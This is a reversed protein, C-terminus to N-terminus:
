GKMYIFADVICLVAMWFCLCCEVKQFADTDAFIFLVGHVSFLMLWGIAMLIHFFTKSM